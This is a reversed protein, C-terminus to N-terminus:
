RHQSASTLWEEWYASCRWIPQRQVGGYANESATQEVKEDIEQAAVVQRTHLQRQVSSPNQELQDSVRRLLSTLERLEQVLQHIEPLTERTFQQTSGIASAANSGAQAWQGSM